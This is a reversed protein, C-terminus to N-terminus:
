WGDWLGDEILLVVVELPVLLKRSEADSRDWGHEEVLLRRGEEIWPTWDLLQAILWKEYDALTSRALEAALGSRWMQKRRRKGADPGLLLLAQASVARRAPDTAPADLSSSVEALASELEAPLQEEAHYSLVTRITEVPCGDSPPVVLGRRRAARVVPLSAYVLRSTENEWREAFYTKYEPLTATGRCVRRRADDRARRRANAAAVRRDLDAERWGRSM